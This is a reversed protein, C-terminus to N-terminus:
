ADCAPVVIVLIVCVHQLMDKTFKSIVYFACLHLNVREVAENAAAHFLKQLHLHHIHLHTLNAPTRQILKVPELQEASLLM